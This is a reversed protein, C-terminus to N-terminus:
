EFFLDIIDNVEDLTIIGDFFDDIANNVEDIDIRGNGDGGNAPDDYHSRLVQKPDLPARTVEITYTMMTGNEATVTVTISTTEGAAALTQMGAGSVSANADNAMATVTVSEVDGGVSATYMTTTPDFDPTMGSVDLSLASLTADDSGVGITVTYTMTASGDEATVTVTVTNSGPTLAVQHGEMDADSDVPRIVIKAGLPKKAMVTTSKVDSGVSDTYSTTDGDFDINIGSLSLASLKADSNAESARSVMITYTKVNVNSDGPGAEPTVAITIKTEGTLYPRVMAGSRASTGSAVSVLTENPRGAKVEVTAGVDIAYSLVINDASYAVEATYNTKNSAFDPSLVAGGLTLNSLNADDSKPARERYATVTYTKMTSGDEATVTVTIETAEGITLSVQHGPTVTDSDTPLIKSSAGVDAPTAGITVASVGNGVVLRYDMKTHSFNEPTRTGVSQTLGTVDKLYANSSLTARERYLSVKYAKTASGNESTVTITILRPEAGETLYVQRGATVPDDDAANTFVSSAGVVTTEAAITVVNVGNKVRVKYDLKKSDFEPDLTQAAGSADTISLSGLTANDSALPRSRFVNLKYAKKTTGNEATVTVTITKKEGADISVQHGSIDIDDDDPTIVYKAGDQATKPKITVSSVTSELTIDYETITPVYAPDWQVTSADSSDVVLGSNDSTDLNANDSKTANERYVRITYTGDTSGDEPSVTVAIDQNSGVTVMQNGGGLAAVSVTAAPHGTAEVKVYESVNRLRVPITAANGVLSPITPTFEETTPGNSSSLGKVTLTRLRNDSSSSSGSRYVNITYDKKTSGDEATVTVTVETVAAAVLNVQHGTTASADKPTIESVWAGVDTPKAHVLVQKVTNAVNVRYETKTNDTFDPTLTANTTGHIIALGRVSNITGVTEETTSLTADDEKEYRERYVKVTYDKTTSNEATVSVRINTEAGAALEVQDGNATRSDPTTSPDPLTRSASAGGATDNTTSKVTAHDVSNSVRATYETTDSNFKPKLTINSGLSLSKLKNDGSLTARQRYVTITYTKSSGGDEPTVTISIDKKSGKDGLDITRGTTPISKNYKVNGVQVIAGDDTASVVLTVKGFTHAVKTKVGDDTVSTTALLDTGSTGEGEYLNWTSLVNSTGPTDNKRYVNITYTEETSGDVARVVVSIATSTGANGLDASRTRSGTTRPDTTNNDANGPFNINLSAGLNDPTAKVQVSSTDSEVRASYTKINKNFTIPSMKVNTISLKSLRANDITNQAHAVDREVVFPTMAAVLALLLAAMLATIPIFAKRKNM